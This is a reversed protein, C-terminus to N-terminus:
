TVHACPGCQRSFFVLSPPVSVLVVPMGEAALLSVTLLGPFVEPVIGGNKFRVRSPGPVEWAVM